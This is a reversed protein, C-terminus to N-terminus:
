IFLDLFAVFFWSLISEIVSFSAIFYTITDSSFWDVIKETIKIVALGLIFNPICMIIMNLIVTGIGVEISLGIMGAYMLKTLIPIVSRAIAYVIVSIIYIFRNVSWYIMVGIFITNLLAILSDPSSIGM